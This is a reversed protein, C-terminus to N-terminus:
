LRSLYVRRGNRRVIRKLYTTFGTSYSIDIPIRCLFTSNRNGGITSLYLEMQENDVLTVFRDSTQEKVYDKFRMVPAFENYSDNDNTNYTSITQESESNVIELVTKVPYNSAIIKVM